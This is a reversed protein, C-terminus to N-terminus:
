KTKQNAYRQNLELMLALELACHRINDRVSDCEHNVYKQDYAVILLALPKNVGEITVASFHEVGHAKLMYCFSRDIEEMNDIDGCWYGESAMYSAFPLLSLNIENYDRAIPMVGVNIAEYTASCKRFPLGTVNETGNHYELIMVRSSNTKYNLKEVVSHIRTDIEERTIMETEHQKELWIKYQEFVWTPNSIFGITAAIILIYIVAKFVTKFKYKEVINLAREFFGLGKDIKEM